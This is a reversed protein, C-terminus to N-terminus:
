RSKANRIILLLIILASLVLIPAIVPMLDEAFYHLVTYVLVHVAIDAFIEITTRKQHDIQNEESKLQSEICPQLYSLVIAIDSLTDGLESKERIETAIKCPYERKGEPLLDCFMGLIDSIRSAVRESQLYDRDSLEGAWKNVEMGLPEYPTGTGRTERCVAGAKEQIERIIEKIRDDIIPLGRRLVRAAGPAGEEAAGILDAARDCYRRCSNLESKKTDFDTANHAESLANALNEVAKLLIEKNESGESASKAEALYKEVEGEAGAKEFTITYFSRYFPLCFRSPNDYYTDEKSSKEFFELSNKLESKFDDESETETAKFISARGLSHNAYARVFRNGGVTMWILDWWAEDKEPVHQFASGVARAAGLRVGDDKDKTLRYLDQWAEEKEPVYQFDSGLADTASRRVGDDKDKTLHHLVKWAQKKDPVHPFALGLAYVAGLRVGDDKDKTLRYLDQWAEEKEPIHQFAHGFAYVVMRRAYSDEDQALRHIDEWAHIKDPMHQFATGIARAAASRVSHEEDQVMWYLDGWVQEKDYIHQFAAGLAEAASPRVLDDEDHTLRRLDEVAQEKDPIYQFAAGIASAAGVRVFGDECQALRHLDKWAQEKDSTHQFAVDIVYIARWRVDGNEDHTLRVLDKWVQEKDPLVAFNYKFQRAADKREEVESSVAKRHIEVQDVM